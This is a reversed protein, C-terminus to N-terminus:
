YFFSSTPVDSTCLVDVLLTDFSSTMYCVCKLIKKQLKKLPIPAQIKGAIIVSKTDTEQQRNHM